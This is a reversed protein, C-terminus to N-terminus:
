GKYNIRYNELCEHKRKVERAIRMNPYTPVDSQVAPCYPCLAFLVDGARERVPCLYTGEWVDVIQGGPFPTGVPHAPEQLVFMSFAALLYKLYLFRPDKERAKDACAEKVMTCYSFFRPDLPDSDEYECRAALILRHHTLFIQERVQPLLRKRYEKPLSAVKRTFRANMQELDRLEFQEMEHALLVLLEAKTQVQHMRTLAEQIAEMSYSTECTNDPEDGLSPDILLTCIKADEYGSQEQCSVHIWHFIRTLISHINM